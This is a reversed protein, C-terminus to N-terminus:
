TDGRTEDIQRLAELILFQTNGDITTDEPLEDTEDFFFKGGEMTMAAFFASQGSMEGCVAHYLKGSKFFIEIKKDADEIVFTGSSNNASVYQLIDPLVGEKIVGSLTHIREKDRGAEGDPVIPVMASLDPSISSMDPAIEMSQSGAVNTGRSPEGAPLAARRDEERNMIKELGSIRDELMHCIGLLREELFDMGLKSRRERLALLDRRRRSLRDGASDDPGPSGGPRPVARDTPEIKLKDILRLIEGKKDAISM